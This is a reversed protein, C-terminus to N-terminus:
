RCIHHSNSFQTVFKSTLIYICTYVYGVRMLLNSVQFEQLSFKEGLIVLFQCCGERHITADTEVVHAQSTYKNMRLQM